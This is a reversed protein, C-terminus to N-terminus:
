QKPLRMDTMCNFHGAWQLWDLTILAKIRPINTQNLISTNPHRGEWCIQLIKRLCHQHYRELMKLHRSYVTWIEPGFLLALIVVARLKAKSRINNNEFM